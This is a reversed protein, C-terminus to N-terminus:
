VRADPDGPTYDFFKTWDVIQTGSGVQYYLVQPAGPKVSLIPYPPDCYNSAKVFFFVHSGTDKVDHGESKNFSITIGSM